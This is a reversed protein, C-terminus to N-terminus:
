AGIHAVPAKDPYITGNMWEVADPIGNNDFDENSKQARLFDYIYEIVFGEKSWDSRYTIGKKDLTSGKIMKGILKASEGYFVESSDEKYAKFGASFLPVIARWSLDWWEMSASTKKLNEFLTAISPSSTDKCYILKFTSKDKSFEEMIKKYVQYTGEEILDKVLLVVSTTVYVIAGIAAIVIGIGGASTGAGIVMMFYGITLLASAASQAYLMASKFYEYNGSAEHADMYSIITAAIGGIAAISGTAAGVTKFANGVRGFKAAIPFKTELCKSFFAQLTASVAATGTAGILLWNKLTLETSSSVANYLSILAFIFMLRAFMKAANAGYTKEMYGRSFEYLAKKGDGLRGAYAAKALVGKQSFTLSKGGNFIKMLGFLFDKQIRCQVKPKGSMFKSIVLGFADVLGEILTATGPAPTASAQIITGVRDILDILPIGEPKEVSEPEEWEPKGEAGMHAIKLIFPEIHSKFVKEALSTKSFAGFADKLTELIDRWDSEVPFTVGKSKADDLFQLYKKWEKSFDKSELLALLKKASSDIKSLFKGCATSTSLNTIYRKGITDKLENLQKSVDIVSDIQEAAKRRDAPYCAMNWAISSLMELQTIAEVHKKTYKQYNEVDKKLIDTAAQIRYQWDPLSGKLKIEQGDTEVTVSVAGQKATLKTLDGTEISHLMDIPCLVFGMKKGMPFVSQFSIADIHIQPAIIRNAKITFVNDMTKLANPPPPPAPVRNTKIAFVNDQTKTSLQVNNPFSSLLYGDSDTTGVGVPFLMNQGAWMPQNLPTTDIKKGSSDYMWYAVCRNRVPEKTEDDYVFKLRCVGAFTTTAHTAVAHSKKASSQTSAKSSSSSKKASAPKAQETTTTM